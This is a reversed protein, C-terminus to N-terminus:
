MPFAEPCHCGCGSACEQSTQWWEVACSSHMVHECIQCVFIDRTVKLDCYNCGQFHPKGPENARWTTTIGGFLDKNEGMMQSAVMSTGLNTNFSIKLMEVREMPLNWRYLLKAYQYSYSRFKKADEPDLFHREPDEIAGLVEDNILEVNIDPLRVRSQQRNRAPIPPSTSYTRTSYGHHRGSFYEESKVSIEDPSHRGRNMGEVYSSALSSSYHSNLDTKTSRTWDTNHFTVISEVKKWSEQRSKLLDGNSKPKKPVQSSVVCCLMALMQLNKRKEFYKIAEKVFWRIGMPHNDWLLDYPDSCEKIMLMDSLVQWCHSIENLNYKEAVLANSRAVQELNGNALQYEVALQKRESILHSFDKFFIVNKLKKWSDMTKASDSHVSSFRKTLKNHLPPLKTRVVIENRLIDSWDNDFSDSSFGESDQDDSSYEVNKSCASSTAITEVYRKPRTSKKKSLRENAGENTEWARPGMKHEKQHRNFNKGTLRLMTQQKKDQNSDSVFFCLLQGTPTWIAGCENPVPTSDFTLDRGFPNRLELDGTSEFVNKYHDSQAESSTDSLYESTADSSPLSSLNELGIQDSIDFNLLPEVDQNLDDLDMNEGLLLRLCPELCYMGSDTYKTVIENLRSLIKERREPKLNGNDEISFKPRNGKSPYARPVKVDVRLFVYDEQNDDSPPGNLTLILEGTSVSIKEFVVKPFKHGISSVEEGLNQITREAFINEPSGTYNMRVGSLWTIYNVDDNKRLGSSTVFTEKKRRYQDNKVEPDFDAPERNYTMYEYSKSSGALRRERNFNVKDYVAEPVPWLRLDCDKSWTVLQFERGDVQDDFSSRSRWLFDVVRDTHGKFAYIPQLKTDNNENKIGHALSALYVSDGGGVTPLLCCGDGFPLYRGRWIPFDTRITKKSDTCDVSYDWFKVSGDNSATMIENSRFRNFDISNVGSNHGSLKALPTSGKRLDWVSVENGHASALVNQDQFSWKVQSAGAVWDRTTYFPRSPSRMDWAHVYTDISCTALIDPHQYNFNIDTIARFHKHLVHEIADSSTRALNWIIAKQNSTSVVWYPKAPHPSWQVDAVQWPTVHRLWRPPSFPDDLDIIHLGQRSALVVDRGSPNISIANVGGDVRLSLSKGFTPSEYPDGGVYNTM